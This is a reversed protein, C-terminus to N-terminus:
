ELGLPDYIYKSVSEFTLQKLKDPSLLTIQNISFPKNTLFHEALLSIIYIDAVPNPLELDTSINSAEVLTSLTTKNTKGIAVRNNQLKNSAAKYPTLGFTEIEPHQIFYDFNLGLPYTPQLYIATFNNNNVAPGFMRALSDYHVERPPGIKLDFGTIMAVEEITYKYGAIEEQTLRNQLVTNKAIAHAESSENFLPTIVKLREIYAPDEVLDSMRLLTIPLHYTKIIQEILEQNKQAQNLVGSKDKVLSNNISHMDGVIVTSTVPIGMVELLQHLYSLFFYYKLSDITLGFADYTEGYVLRINNTTEIKSVIIEVSPLVGQTLLKQNLLDIITRINKQKM